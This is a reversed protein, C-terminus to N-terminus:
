KKGRYIKIEVENADPVWKKALENIQDKQEQTVVDIVVVTVTKMGSAKKVIVKHVDCIENEVASHVQSSQKMM